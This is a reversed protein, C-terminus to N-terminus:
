WLYFKGCFKRDSIYYINQRHNLIKKQFGYAYLLYLFVAFFLIFRFTDQCLNSTTNKLNTELM